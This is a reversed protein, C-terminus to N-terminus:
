KVTKLYAIIAARDAANADNATMATGPAFTNPAAIFADLNAETWTQGAKAKLADSYTFGPVAAVKRGAVGKLTPATYSTDDVTHCDACNSNFLDQGTAAFAPAAALTLAAVLAVRM